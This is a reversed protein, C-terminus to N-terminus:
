IDGYFLYWDEKFRTCIKIQVLCSGFTFNQYQDTTIETDIIMRINSNHIEPEVDNHNSNNDSFARVFSDIM